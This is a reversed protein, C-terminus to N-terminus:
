QLRLPRQTDYRETKIVRDLNDYTDCRFFDIEGDTAFRRGRFDNCYSTM